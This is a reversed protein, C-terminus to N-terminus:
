FTNAASCNETYKTQRAARQFAPALSAFSFRMTILQNKEYQHPILIRRCILLDNLWIQIYHSGAPVDSFYEATRDWVPKLEPRGEIVLDADLEIPLILVIANPTSEGITTFTRSLYLAIHRPLADAVAVTPAQAGVCHKTHSSLSYLGDFVSATFVYLGASPNKETLKLRVSPSIKPSRWQVPRLATTPVEGRDDICSVIAIEITGKHQSHLRPAAFALISLAAAAIALVRM